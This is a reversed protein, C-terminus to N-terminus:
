AVAEIEDASFKFEVYPTVEFDTAVDEEDVVRVIVPDQDDFDQWSDDARSNLERCYKEAAEHAWNAEICDGKIWRKDDRLLCNYIAM